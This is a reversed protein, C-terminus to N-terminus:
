QIILPLSYYNDKSQIKLIYPGKPLHTIPIRDQASIREYHGVMIGSANYISVDILLEDRDIELRIFDSAPNPYFRVHVETASPEAISSTCDKRHGSINWGKNFLNIYAQEAACYTLEHAGLPRAPYNAKDWAILTSDYNARSIGSYSLMYSMNTVNRINWNSLNQDFSAAEYFMYNMDSISDFNWSSLDQNFSSARTFM